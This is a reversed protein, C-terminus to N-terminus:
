GLCEAADPLPGAAANLVFLLRMTGTSAVPPSRHLIAPEEVSLRGKFIAVHGLGLQNVPADSGYATEIWQTGPGHLPMLLRATVYDMHFKRCADTDIVELRMHLRECGMLLAFGAAHAALEIALADRDQGCPYGAGDLLASIEPACDSAPIQTDIVEITNLDLGDIWELAQPRERQWIALQVEPHHISRLVAAVKGIIAAGVNPARELIATSM